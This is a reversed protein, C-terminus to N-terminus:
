LAAAVGKIVVTFPVKDKGGEDWGQNKLAFIAGAVNVAKDYLKEATFAEVTLAARNAVEHYAKHSDRTRYDYLTTRNSFGLHLALGPITFARKEEKAFRFYDEAMIEFAAANPLIFASM